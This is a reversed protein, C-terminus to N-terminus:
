EGLRVTALVRHEARDSFARQVSQVVALAGISVAGVGAAPRDIAVAEPGGAPFRALTFHPLWREREDRRSPEVLRRSLRRQLEVASPSARATMAVLRAPVGAGTPLTLLRDPVVEIAGARSGGLGAGAREVSEVVAGLRDPRTQGLFVLTLHVREPAEPRTGPPLAVYRLQDLMAAAHEPTPYAAVFLRLAGPGRVPM